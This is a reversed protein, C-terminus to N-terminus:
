ASVQLGLMWEVLDQMLEVASDGRTVAAIEGISLNVVRARRPNLLSILEITHGSSYLMAAYTLAQRIDYSRFPRTVTKIEVLERGALLDATAADVVGCGPITPSFIPQQLRAAYRRTVQALMGVELWEDQSLQAEAGSSHPLKLLFDRAEAELQYKQYLDGPFGAGVLLFATEAILANRETGSYSPVPAGLSEQLGNAARLVSETAPTVQLWVSSHRAFASVSILNTGAM